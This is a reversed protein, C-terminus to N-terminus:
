GPSRSRRFSLGVVVLPKGGWRQTLLGIVPALLMPMGKWAM